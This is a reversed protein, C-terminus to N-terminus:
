TQFWTGPAAIAASTHTEPPEGRGPISIGKLRRHYIIQGSSDCCCCRSTGGAGTRLRRTRSRRGSWVDATVSPRFCFVRTSERESQRPRGSIFSLMQGTVYGIGVRVVDRLQVSDPADAWQRYSSRVDAPLLYPRLRCGWGHWDGLPVSIDAQPPSEAFRFRDLRSFAIHEARGGFGECYLLWCDESLQPFLKRRVAIVHVLDFKAALHRLVPRAYPAHGIEAPVVFAMRGGPKLVTSTAVIFPAWSSTLSTFRAGHAACLQIARRRVEGAFRQYRIFPPNGAACSFREHTQAAWAFFDGEHILSEPAVRQALWAAAPQDEVGVSNPHAVLFRGDGCAPDILRDDRSRTAWRVLSAVVDGPTYYSGSQKRLALEM